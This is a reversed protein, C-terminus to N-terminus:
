WQCLGNCTEVGSFGCGWILECPGSVCSVGGCQGTGGGIKCNCYDVDAHAQRADTGSLAGLDTWARQHAFTVFAREARQRFEQFAATAQPEHLYLAPTLLGIAEVTLAHQTATLDPQAGLRRIQERWLAARVGPSVATFIARRHARDFGALEDLTPTSHEYSVAWARLAACSSASIASSPLPGSVLLGCFVATALFRATM